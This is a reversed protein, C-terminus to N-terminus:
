QPTRKQSERLKMTLRVDVLALLVVIFLVMIIGTWLILFLYRHSDFDVAGIAVYILIALLIMAAGNVRRLRIRRRNASAAEIAELRHAAKSYFLYYWGAVGILLSLLTPPWSSM